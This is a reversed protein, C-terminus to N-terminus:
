RSRPSRRRRRTTYTWSNPIFTLTINGSAAPAGTLWFRYTLSGAASSMLVPTQSTDVALTGVGSGGLTFKPMGNTISAQDITLGTSSDPQDFVIDIWNRGGLLNVDITGGQSPNVVVATPGEITLTSTSAVNSAGTTVNGQSDTTDANKVAGAAVTVIVSGPTFTVGSGLLYRFETVGVDSLADSWLQSETIGGSFSSGALVTQRALDTVIRVTQNNVTQSQVTLDFLTFQSFQSANAEIYQILQADTDGALSANSTASVTLVTETTPGFTFISNSTSDYELPVTLVGNALTITQVPIPGSITVTGSIGSGSLSITGADGMIATYDLNAGTAATYTIDIYAQGPDTTVVNSLGAGYTASCSNSDATDGNAANVDASGGPPAPDTVTSGPSTSAATPSVPPAAVSFTVPQGQANEFGMQLKGYLTLLQVQTPVNALFLVTVSGSTVQSLDVYLKGSISVNNNFFNLQGAILFKGDTSIEVTVQGNFLAQSTYISYIDASGIITMPSTFASLFNAQGNTARAQAAVQSQLSSLWQAATLQTPVAFQPGNLAMPDTISPLTKYFEVGGAFNNITLGTDPDLLIGGPVDVSVFADLPGLQSLGLQIQFGAMGDITFGGELGLYFVRHAVPTTTDTPAIINFGSDLDLIGGVLGADIQGGFLDGQVTVAISRIGIIPFEGQALLSPDIQIGQIAGTINVGALGGISTM